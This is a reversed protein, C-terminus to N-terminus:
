SFVYKLIYSDPENPDTYGTDTFGAGEYVRLAQAAEKKVCIEITKYKKESELIDMVQKLAQKGIGKNQYKHDVLLQEITYCAPEEALDLFMVVGVIIEDNKIALARANAKRKAYARALIGVPSAVFGKQEDYVSLECVTMYNEENIEVLSIM